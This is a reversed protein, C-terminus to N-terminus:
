GISLLLKPNSQIYFDNRNIKDGASLYIPICLYLNTTLIEWTIISNNSYISIHITLKVCVYKVVLSGRLLSLSVFNTIKFKM